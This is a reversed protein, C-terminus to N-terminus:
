RRPRTWQQSGGNKTFFVQTRDPSYRVGDIQKGIAVDQYRGTALNVEGLRYRRPTFYGDVVALVLLRQDAYLVPRVGWGGDNFHHITSVSSGLIARVENSSFTIQHPGLQLLQASWDAPYVTQLTDSRGQGEATVPYRGDPRQSIASQAATQQAQVAEPGLLSGSLLLFAPLKM